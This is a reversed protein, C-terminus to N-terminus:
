PMVEWDDAWMDENSIAYNSVRDEHNYITVPNGSATTHLFLYRESHRWAFRRVMNGAILLPIIDVLTM